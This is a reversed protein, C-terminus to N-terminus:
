CCTMAMRGPVFVGKPFKPSKLVMATFEVTKGKYREPHDMCDIYWVGYDEPKLQIVPAKLDYPLDEELTALDIEGDQDEMVIESDRRMALISRRYADLKEDTLGDGRNVRVREASRRLARVIAM